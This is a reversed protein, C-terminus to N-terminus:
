TWVAQARDEELFNMMSVCVGFFYDVEIDIRKVIQKFFCYHRNKKLTHSLSRSECVIELPLNTHSLRAKGFPELKEVRVISLYHPCTYIGISLYAFKILLTM